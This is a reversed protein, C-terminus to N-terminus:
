VEAMSTEALRSVHPQTKSTPDSNGLDPRTPHYYIRDTISVDTISVTPLLLYPQYYYIRLFSIVSLKITIGALDAEQGCIVDQVWQLRWTVNKHAHLM